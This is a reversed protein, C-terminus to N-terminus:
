VVTARRHHPAATAAQRERSPETDVGGATMGLVTPHLIVTMGSTLVFANVYWRVHPWLQADTEDDALPPLAGFPAEGTQERPIRQLVQLNGDHGGARRCAGGSFAGRV